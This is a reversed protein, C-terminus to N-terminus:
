SESIAWPKGLYQAIAARAIEACDTGSFSQHEDHGKAIIRLAALLENPKWAAEDMYPAGMM